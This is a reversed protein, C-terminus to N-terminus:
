KYIISAIINKFNIDYKKKCKNNSIKIFVDSYGCDYPVYPDCGYLRIIHSNDTKNIIINKIQCSTSMSMSTSTSSSCNKITNIINQFYKNEEDSCSYKLSSSM